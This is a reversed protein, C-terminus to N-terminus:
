DLQQHFFFLPIVEVEHGDNSINSPVCNSTFKADLNGLRHETVMTDGHRRHHVHPVPACREQVSGMGTEIRGM